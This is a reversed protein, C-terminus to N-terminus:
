ASVAAAGDAFDRSLSAIHFLDGRSSGNIRCERTQRGHADLCLPIGHCRHYLRNSEDNCFPFEIIAKMRLAFAFSFELRRIASHKELEEAFFQEFLSASREIQACQASPAAFPRTPLRLPWSSNNWAGARNPRTPFSKQPPFRWIIVLFGIPFRVIKSACSANIDWPV